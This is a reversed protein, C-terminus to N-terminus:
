FHIRQALLQEELAAIRNYAAALQTNLRRIQIEPSVAEGDSATNRSTNTDDDVLVDKHGMMGSFGRHSNEESSNEITANESANEKSHQMQMDTDIRNSLHEVVAYLRDIKQELATIHNELRDM